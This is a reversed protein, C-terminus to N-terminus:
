PNEYVWLGLPDALGMSGHKGEMSEECAFIFIFIFFFLGM